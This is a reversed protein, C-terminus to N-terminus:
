LGINRTNIEIDELRTEIKDLTENLEKLQAILKDLFKIVEEM